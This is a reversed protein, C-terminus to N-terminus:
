QKKGRGFRKAAFMLGGGLALMGLGLGFDVDAGTSPTGTSAGLVGTGVGAVSSTSAHPTPTPTPGPPAPTPTPTPTPTPGPRPTPTPTPTPAAPAACNLWFTKFKTPDQSVLIKFHLGQSNIATDGAAIADNVLTTSSVTAITQTGGVTKNYNWTGSLLSEQTGSPPWGYITYSGSSDALNMGGVIISTPCGLHPDHEGGPGLSIGDLFFDGANNDGNAAQLAVGNSLAPAGITGFGMLALGGTAIAAGTLRVTLRRLLLGVVHSQSMYLWYTLKRLGAM